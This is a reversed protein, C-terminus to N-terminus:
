RDLLISAIRIVDIVERRPKYVRVLRDGVLYLGTDPYRTLKTPWYDFPVPQFAPWYADDVVWGQQLKKQWGPPLPKGRQLNKALGPPLGHPHHKHKAFEAELAQREWDRFRLDPEPQSKAGKRVAPNLKKAQGPPITKGTAPKGKAKSKGKDPAAELACPSILLGFGLLALLTRLPTM